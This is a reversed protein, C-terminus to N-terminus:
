SRALVTVFLPNIWDMGRSWRLRPKWKGSLARGIGPIDRGNAIPEIEEEDNDFTRRVPRSQGEILEVYEYAEYPLHVM